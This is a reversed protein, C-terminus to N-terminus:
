EAEVTLEIQAAVIGPWSDTGRMELMNDGDVLEGMEVPLVFPRAGGGPDGPFFFEVDHWAGGNFRYGLTDESTFSVTNLTLVANKAGAMDVGPLVHKIGTPDLEYGVNKGDRSTTGSDPVMYARPTPHAPGDFAVNDFQYSAYAPMRETKDANYHSHQLHVYGKSFKLPFMNPASQQDLSILKRLTEPKGADSVFVDLTTESVHIEVHNMVGIGTAFCDNDPTVKSVMEYDEETFVMSIKNKGSDYDDCMFNGQFEIGIGRRSFLQLAGGDQYPVPEPDETLMFNWWIGHGLYIMSRGDVDFSIVGTRDKFDFPKRVRMSQVTFGGGDNYANVARGKAPGEDCIFFDTGPGINERWEGCADSRAAQWWELDGQGPNSIGSIRAISWEADDLDGARGGPSAKDFTDCFAAAEMGCGPPGDGPPPETPEPNPKSSDDPKDIATSGATGTAGPKVSGSGALPASPKGNDDPENGVDGPDNPEDSPGASSDDGSCAVCFACLLAVVVSATVQKEIRFTM